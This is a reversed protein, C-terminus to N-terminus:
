NLSNIFQQASGVVPYGSGPDVVTVTDYNANGGADTVAASGQANWYVKLYIAVGNRTLKYSVNDSNITAVWTIAVPATVSRAAVDRQFDNGTNRVAM